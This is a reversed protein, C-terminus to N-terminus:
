VVCYGLKCIDLQAITEELVGSRLLVSFQGDLALACRTCRGRSAEITRAGMAIRDIAM